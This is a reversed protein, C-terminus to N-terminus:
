PIVHAKESVWHLGVFTHVAAEREESALTLLLLEHGFDSGSSINSEM